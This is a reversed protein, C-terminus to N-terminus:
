MFIFNGAKSSNRFKLGNTEMNKILKFSYKKKKKPGHNKISMQLWIIIGDISIIIFNGKDVNNVVEVLFGINKRCLKALIQGISPVLTM